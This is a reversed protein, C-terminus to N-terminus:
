AARAGLGSGWQPPQPPAVLQSFRRRLHAAALPALAYFIAFVVTFAVVVRWASTAYSTALWIAFVLVTATAGIAHLRDDQRFVSVGWLGVVILLLFGFLLGTHEGYRPVAALFIAFALPMISAALGSHELTLDMASGRDARGLTLAIFSTVSFVLFVGMALTVDSSSLFTVVWGM